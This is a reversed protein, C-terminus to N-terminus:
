RASRDRRSEDLCRRRSGDGRAARRRGVAVEGVHVALRQRPPREFNRRGAAVVDQHDTRGPAPLVIIARRRRRCGAAARREVLREFDVEMWETAPSRPRRARAQERVAREARRVVGIESTASTPPPLM